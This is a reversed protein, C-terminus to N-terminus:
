VQTITYFGSAFVKDGSPLIVRFIMWESFQNNAPQAVMDLENCREQLVLYDSYYIDFYRFFTFHNIFYVGWDGDASTYSGDDQYLWDWQSKDVKACIVSTTEALVSFPSFLVSLGVLLKYRLKM